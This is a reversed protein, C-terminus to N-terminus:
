EKDIVQCRATGDFFSVKIDQGCELSNISNIVGQEDSTISYGRSLVSMPNLAELSKLSLLFRNEFLSLNKDKQLILRENLRDLDESREEVILSPSKLYHSSCLRLLDANATALRSNLSNKMRQKSATLYTSLEAIDPVALEAAASPTPARHDAVFDCITFDVEHGVASIVPIPSEYVTKALEEDNFAWLDEASGGGRGLIIVDACNVKYLRKLADIISAPADAGQVLVPCLVIKCLPYRRSIVNLIDQLAAGTESTVVAITKPFAPLPKKHASDFLGQKELKEKIQQFKLALAGDGDPIIDEVYLQYQGSKEYLSVRGKCIVALGDSLECKLKSANSRFMACNILADSDKLSFYLHGSGYHNKFNSIEGSVSVYSLRSDGELLSRVYLNLQKVSLTTQM